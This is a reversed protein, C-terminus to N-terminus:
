PTNEGGHPNHVKESGANLESALRVAFEPTFSIQMPCRDPIENNLVMAVRDRHKM